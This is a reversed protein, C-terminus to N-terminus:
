VVCACRVDQEETHKAQLMRVAALAKEIEPLKGMLRVRKHLLQQEHMRYIQLDEKLQDLAEDM